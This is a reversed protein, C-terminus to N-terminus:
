QLFRPLARLYETNNLDIRSTDFLLLMLNNTVSKKFMLYRDNRLQKWPYYAYCGTFAHDCSLCGNSQLARSDEWIVNIAKDEHNESLLENSRFNM